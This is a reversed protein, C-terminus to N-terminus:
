NPDGPESGLPGKFAFPSALLSSLTAFSLSLSLSMYIYIYIYIHNIKQPNPTYFHQPLPKPPYIISFKDHPDGGFFTNTFIASPAVSYTPFDGGIALSLLRGQYLLAALGTALSSWLSGSVSM